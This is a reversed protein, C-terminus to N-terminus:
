RGLPVQRAPQRRYVMTNVSNTRFECTPQKRTTALLM